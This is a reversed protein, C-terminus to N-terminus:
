AKQGSLNHMIIIEEKLLATACINDPPRVKTLGKLLLIIAYKAHLIVIKSFTKLLVVRANKQDRVQDIKQM